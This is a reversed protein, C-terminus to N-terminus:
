NSTTEENCTSDKAKSTNATTGEATLTFGVYSTDYYYLVKNGKRRFYYEYATSSAGNVSFSINSKVYNQDNLKVISGDDNKDVFDFSWSFTKETSSSDSGSTGIDLYHIYQVSTSYNSASTIFFEYGNDIDSQTIELGYYYISSNFWSLGVMNGSWDNNFNCKYKTNVFGTSYDKPTSRQLRIVLLVKMFGSGSTIFEFRGPKVPAVWIGKTPIFLKGTYSGVTAKEVITYSSSDTPWDVENNGQNAQFSSSGSLQIANDGQRGTSTSKTLFSQIKTKEDDSLSSYDIPSNTAKTISTFDLTSFKDKHVSIGDGAYYGINTAKSDAAISSANNATISTGSSTVTTSGSGATVSKTSDFKIPIAYNSPISLPNSTSGLSSSLKNYLDYVNISTGYDDGGEGSGPATEWKFKEKNYDGILTYSSVNTFGSINTVGSALKLSGYHVGSNTLEGNVYGALMGCLTNEAYANITVDDLYVGKVSNVSSTYTYETNNYTYSSTNAGSTTSGVIGFFGVININVNNFDDQTVNSPHKTIYGNSSGIQTSIKLNSITHNDGDFNGVFPYQETGIPPLTWDDTMTIDADLKFYYQEDITKDNNGDKNFYGIYQLWALNYLHIPKNIIYPKDETGSGGAFYAGATNGEIAKTVNNGNSFWSFTVALAAGCALLVSGLTCGIIISSSTKKKM